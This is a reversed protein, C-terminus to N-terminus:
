TRLYNNGLLEVGRDFVAQAAAATPRQGGLALPLVSALSRERIIYDAAAAVPERYIVGTFAAFADVVPQTEQDTAGDGVMLVPRSLHWEQIVRRKGGSAALPSAADFGAYLGNDDFYIDVAEVAEEEVGLAAALAVVAPKLGGSIVRVHVGEQMLAAVTDAADPVLTEIYRQGLAQVRSRTPRVLELRRGYVQELPITGRMAQDTLAEVEARHERALEEIGEISSLTSDCDFVVSNFRLPLKM